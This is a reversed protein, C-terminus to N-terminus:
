RDGPTVRRRSRWRVALSAAGALGLALLVAPLVYVGAGAHEGALRAPTTLVRPDDPDAIGVLRQGPVRTATGPLVAQYRHGAVTYVGRCTEGAANSGSGGLQGLCGTVTVTVRVGHRRLAAVQADHSAGAAFLVGAAVLLAVVAAVALVAAVRRLDVDRPEAGRLRAVPAAPARPETPAGPAGPMPSGDAPTVPSNM